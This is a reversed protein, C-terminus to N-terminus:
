DQPVRSPAGHAQSPRTCGPLIPQPVRYGYSGLPVSTSNNQLFIHCFLDVGTGKLTAPDDQTVLRGVPAADGSVYASAATERQKMFQEFDHLDKNVTAKAM